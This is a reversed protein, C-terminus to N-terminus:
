VQSPEERDNFHARLTDRFSAVLSFEAALRLSARSILYRSSRGLFGFYGFPYNRALKCSAPYRHETVLCCGRIGGDLVDSLCALDVPVIDPGHLFPIAGL